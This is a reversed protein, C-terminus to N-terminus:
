KGKRLRVSAGEFKAGAAELARRIADLNNRRPNNQRNEFAIITVRNVQAAQALAAQSMGLLERAAKCQEPIIAVEGDLRWVGGGDDDFEVGSAELAACIMAEVWAAPRGPGRELRNVSSPSVGSKSALEARSWGLRKRAELVQAATISM